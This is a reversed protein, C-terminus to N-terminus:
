PRYWLASYQQTTAGGESLHMTYFATTHHLAHTCESDDDDDDGGFIVNGLVQNDDDIVPM